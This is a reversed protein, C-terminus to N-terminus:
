TSQIVVENYMNQLIIIQKYLAIYEGMSKNSM